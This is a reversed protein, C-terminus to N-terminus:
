VSGTQREGRRTVSNLEDAAGASKGRIWALITGDDRIVPVRSHAYQRRIAFAALRDVRKGFRGSRPWDTKLNFSLYASMSSVVLRLSINIHVVLCQQLLRHLFRRAHM